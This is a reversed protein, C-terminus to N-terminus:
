CLDQVIIQWGAFRWECPMESSPPYHFTKIQKNTQSVFEVKRTGVSCHCMPALYDLKCKMLTIFVHFILKFTFYRAQM